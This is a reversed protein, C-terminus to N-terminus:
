VVSVNIWDPKVLTDTVNESTFSMVGGVDNVENGKLSMAITANVDSVVLSHVGAINIFVQGDKRHYDINLSDNVGPNYDFFTTSEVGTSSDRTKLELKNNKFLLYYSGHEDFKLADNPDASFAVHPYEIANSENFWSVGKVTKPLLITGDNVTGPIKLKLRLHEGVALTYYAASIHGSLGGSPEFPAKNSKIIGSIKTQSFRSADTIDGTFNDISWDVVTWEPSTTPPIVVPNSKIVTTTVTAVKISGVYDLAGVIPKIEVLDVLTGEVSEAFALGEETDTIDMVEVMEPSILVGHSVWLLVAHAFAKTYLRPDADHTINFTKCLLRQAKVLSMTSQVSDLDIVVLDDKTAPILTPLSKRTVTITKDPFNPISVRAKVEGLKDNDELVWTIDSKARTSFSKLKGNYNNLLIESPKAYTNDLM